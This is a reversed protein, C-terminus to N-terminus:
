MERMHGTHRSRSKWAEAGSVRRIGPTTGLSEELTHWVASFRHIDFLQGVDQGNINGLRLNIFEEYAMPPPQNPTGGGTRGRRRHDHMERPLTTRYRDYGGTRFPAKDTVDTEPLLQLNDRLELHMDILNIRPNMGSASGAQNASGRKTRLTSSAFPEMYERVITGYFADEGIYRTVFRRLDPLQVIM